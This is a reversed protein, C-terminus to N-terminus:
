TTQLKERSYILDREIKFPNPLNLRYAIKTTLVSKGVGRKAGVADVLIICDYNNNIRGEIVECLDKITWIPIHRAM